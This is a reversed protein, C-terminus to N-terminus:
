GEDEEDEDKGDYIEEDVTEPDSEYLSVIEKAYQVLRKRAYAEDKSSIDWFHQVCDRLDGKTNQFRCYSMNPM